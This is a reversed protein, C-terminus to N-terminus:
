LWKVTYKTISSFLVLYIKVLFMIESLVFHCILIVSTELLCLKHHEVWLGGVKLRSYVQNLSVRAGVSVLQHVGVPAPLLGLVVQHLQCLLDLLCILEGSSCSAAFKLDNSFLYHPNLKEVRFSM